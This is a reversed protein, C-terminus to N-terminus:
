STAMEEDRDQLNDIMKLLLGRMAAKEEATFGAFTATELDQMIATMRSIAARGHDTLYVRSVREDEDDRRRVVLEAKEMRKIMNSITSPTVDLIAALESHTRGNQKSLARLLPPQGRYLGISEWLRSAAKFHLHCARGFVRDLSVSEDLM